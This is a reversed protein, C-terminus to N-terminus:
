RLATRSHIYVHKAFGKEIIVLASMTLDKFSISCPINAFCSKAVSQLLANISKTSDGKKLGYVLPPFNTKMVQYTEIAADCMMCYM